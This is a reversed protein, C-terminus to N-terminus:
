TRGTLQKLLNSSCLLSIEDIFENLIEDHRSSLWEDMLQDQGTYAGWGIEGIWFDEAWRYLTPTIEGTTLYLLADHAIDKRKMKRIM